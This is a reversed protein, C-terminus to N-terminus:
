GVLASPWDTFQSRVDVACGPSIVMGDQDSDTDIITGAFIVSRRIAIPHAIRAGTGVISSQLVAGPHVHAGEAMCQRMGSNAMVKMNCALLDAPSTLNLDDKVCASVRVDAGSEVLIQIAETLEYENRMATRPTRRIADFITADFLYLGVGKLESATERPKEVVRTVRGKRDTLIAYNKAMERPDSVRKAALVASYASEHYIRVMDGLDDEVFYIDGLMLVFPGDIHPALQGLAHAIGLAETQEVYTIQVGLRAGDGLEQSILYGKHGILITVQDIGLKKMALIQYEILPRNMIPLLPKPFFENLPAMRTGRGGALIAGRLGQEM